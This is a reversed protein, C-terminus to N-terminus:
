SAGASWPRAQSAFESEVECLESHIMGLVAEIESWSASLAGRDVLVRLIDRADNLGNIAQGLLIVDKNDM